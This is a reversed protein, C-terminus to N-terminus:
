EIVEVCLWTNASGTRNKGGCTSDGILSILDGEAVNVINVSISAGAYYMDSSVNVLNSAVNTSNKKIIAWLYGSSTPLDLFIAGSVRIKNIGKGILIKGDKLSLNNGSNEAIQDLTMVYESSLTQSNSTTAVLITKKTLNDINDEFMKNLRIM